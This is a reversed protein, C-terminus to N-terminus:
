DFIYAKSHEEQKKDGVTSRERPANLELRMLAQVDTIDNELFFNKKQINSPVNTTYVRSKKVRYIVIRKWM